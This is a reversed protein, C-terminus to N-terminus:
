ALDLAFVQHDRELARVRRQALLDELVHALTGGLGQALVQLVATRHLQGLHFGLVLLDQLGDAAQGVCALDGHAAATPVLKDSGRERTIRAEVAPQFGSCTAFSPSLGTGSGSSAERAAAASAAACTSARM